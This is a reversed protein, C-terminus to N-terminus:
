GGRFRAPLDGILCIRHTPRSCAVYLMRAAQNPNTCRGIDKLDVFVTHYTSGQAKYVTCADRPRLDAMQDKLRYHTVWDQNKAYHKLLNAVHAPNEPMWVVGMGTVVRRAPTTVGGGVKFDEVEGIEIIHVEQEIRLRASTDGQLITAANSIAWEGATLTPPMGKEARIWNNFGIVQDNRYALIRATQGLGDPDDVFFRRIEDQAQDPDLYDIVGPVGQIETFIGTEVTQRLQQCLATIAPTHQSRVIQKLEVPTNRQFVPSLDEMVPAMQCHDGVYLIKCRYTSEDILRDLQRDIMSCEDVVLLANSLVQANNKRSLLQKGTKFDPRVQIGLLSHVTKAEEGTSGQLVEAAKNTTASLQWNDIVEVGILQQAKIHQQDQMLYKLLTSKGVGAPGSIVMEKDDSMMFATFAAAAAKQDDTLQFSM